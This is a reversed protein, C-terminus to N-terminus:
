GRWRALRATPDDTPRGLDLDRESRRVGARRPNTQYHMSSIVEGDDPEVYGLAIRQWDAQV